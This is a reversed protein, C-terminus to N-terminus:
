QRAGFHEAYFFVTWVHETGANYNEVSELWHFYKKEWGSGESALPDGPGGTSIYIDYTLDPVENKLRVDFEDFSIPIHLQASVDRIIQRICRMGQNPQGEYLDLIALRIM